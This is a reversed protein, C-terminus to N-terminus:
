TIKNLKGEEHDFIVKLNIVRIIVMM